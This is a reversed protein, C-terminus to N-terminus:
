VVNTASTNKPLPADIEHKCFPCTKNTLLWQDVCNKHFHHNCPLYRIDEKEEYDSLCIACNCDEKPLQGAEFKKCPLAAITNASAGRHTREQGPPYIFIRLIVVVCTCCCFLILMGILVLQIIILAYCMRFLFPATKSCSNNSLAQFTWVMGVIFWVFWLLNLVRNAVHYVRLEKLRREQVETPETPHPLKNLVIFNTMLLLMQLVVQAIAWERLPRDCSKAWDVILVTVLAVTLPIFYLIFIFNGRRWMQTLNIVRSSAQRVQILRAAQEDNNNRNRRTDNVRSDNVYEEEEEEEEEQIIRRSQPSILSASGINETNETNQRTETLEVANDASEIDNM